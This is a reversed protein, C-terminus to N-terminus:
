QAWLGANHTRSAPTNACRCYRHQELVLFPSPHTAAGTHSQCTADPNRKSHIGICHITKTRILEYKWARSHTLAEFSPQTKDLQIVVERPLVIEQPSSYLTLSHHLILVTGPILYNRQRHWGRHIPDPVWPHSAPGARQCQGVSLSTPLSNLPHTCVHM